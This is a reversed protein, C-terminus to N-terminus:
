RTGYVVKKLLNNWSVCVKEIRFTDAYEVAKNGMWALDAKDAMYSMCGALQAINGKEFLTAMGKDELLERTIPLDSAIIPLGHAMAEIMVLSFGEWRSSLVYMSSHAYHKQVEKTFPYLRINEELKYKNILSRYLQEEPGEGVIELTWEPHTKVFVSFARILIDFGKHGFSFRGIALVRRYKKNGRGKPLVTLPNYIVECGLNMKRYFCDADAHSLVVMKDLKRMQYQFFYDLGLLYPNEKEFFAEYSNHMWGITKVQIMKKVASLHLAMFAHVGIVVDYQRANIKQALARKYSPLFFSGAYWESTLQTHPLGHKYLFSYGKCLLREIFSSTSYSLCDFQVTSEDYGYMSLDPCTTDTTLITVEHKGSLAKAIEALVRQVGGFSFVTDCYFLIRM